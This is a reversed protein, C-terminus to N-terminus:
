FVLWNKPDVNGLSMSGFLVRHGHLRRTVLISQSPVKLTALIPEGNFNRHHNFIFIQSFLHPLSACSFKISNTVVSLQKPSKWILCAGSFGTTSPICLLLQLLACLLVQFIALDRNTVWFFHRCHIMGHLFPLLPEHTISRSSAVGFILVWVTWGLPPVLELSFAFHTAQVSANSSISPNSLRYPPTFHSFPSSFVDPCRRAGSTSVQAEFFSFRIQLSQQLIFTNDLRKWWISRKTANVLAYLEVHYWLWSTKLELCPLRLIFIFINCGM